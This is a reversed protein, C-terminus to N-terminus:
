LKLDVQLINKYFNNFKERIAKKRLPLNRKAFRYSDKMTEQSIKVPDLGIFNLVSPHNLAKIFNETVRYFQSIQDEVIERKKYPQKEYFVDSYDLFQSFSNVFNTFYMEVIQNWETRSAAVDRSRISTLYAEMKEQVKKGENIFADSQKHFKELQELRQSTIDSNIKRIEAKIRYSSLLWSIFWITGIGIIIIAISVIYIIWYDGQDIIKLAKELAPKLLEIILDDM